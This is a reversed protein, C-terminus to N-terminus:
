PMVILMFLANGCINSPEFSYQFQEFILSFIWFFFYFSSTINWLEKKLVSTLGRTHDPLHASPFWVVVVVCCIKNKLKWGLKQINWKFISIIMKFIGIYVPVCQKNKSFEQFCKALLFEVKEFIEVNGKQLSSMGSIAIIWFYVESFWPIQRFTLYDTVFKLLWPIKSRLFWKSALRLICIKFM